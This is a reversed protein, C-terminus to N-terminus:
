KKMRPGTTSYSNWSDFDQSVSIQLAKQNLLKTRWEFFNNSLIEERECSKM